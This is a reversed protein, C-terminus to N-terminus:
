ADLSGCRPVACASSLEIWGNSSTLSGHGHPRRRLRAAACRSRMCKRRKMISPSSARVWLGAADPQASRHVARGGCEVKLEYGLYGVFGGAFDFPLADGAVQYRRLRERLYRFFGQEVRTQTVEGEHESMVISESYRIVDADGADGLYSFRSLGSMVRSSDLWFATRSASFLEVFLAEASVKLARKVYRLQVSIDPAPMPAYIVSRWAVEEDILRACSSTL